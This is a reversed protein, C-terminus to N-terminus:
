TVSLGVRKNLSPRKQTRPKWRRGKVKWVPARDGRKVKLVAAPLVYVQEQPGTAHSIQICKLYTFLVSELDKENM